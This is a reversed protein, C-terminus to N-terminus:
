RFRASRSGIQRFLCAVACAFVLTTSAPEPVALFHFNDILYGDGHNDDDYVLRTIGAGDLRFISDANTASDVISGAANYARGNIVDVEDTFRGNIYNEFEAFLVSLGGFTVTIVESDFRTSLLRGDPFPGGLSRIQLGVGAFTV